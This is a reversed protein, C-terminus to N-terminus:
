KKADQAAQEGLKKAKESQKALVDKIEAHTALTNSYPLVLLFPFARSFHFRM